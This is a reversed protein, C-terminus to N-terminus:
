CCAKCWRGIGYQFISQDHKELTPELQANACLLAKGIQIQTRVTGICAASDLLWSIMM